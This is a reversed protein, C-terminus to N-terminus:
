EDGMGEKNKCIVVHYFSEDMLITYADTTQRKTAKLFKVLSPSLTSTQMFKLNFHFYQWWYMTSLCIYNIKKQWTFCWEYLIFPLITIVAEFLLCSPLM